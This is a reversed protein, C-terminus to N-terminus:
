CEDDDKKMMMTMMAICTIMDEEKCDAHEYEDYAYYENQDNHDDNTMLTRM